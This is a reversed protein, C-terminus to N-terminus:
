MGLQFLPLTKPLLPDILNPFRRMLRRVARSKGIRRVVSRPLESRTLLYLKHYYLYDEDSITIKLQQSQVKETYGYEPFKVMPYLRVDEDGNADRMFEFTERLREETDYESRTIMEFFGELGCEVMLRAATLATDPQVPRNYEKLVGFSGSQIGVTM